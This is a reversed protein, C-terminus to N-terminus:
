LVKGLLQSIIIFIKTRVILGLMIYTTDKGNEIYNFYQNKYMLWRSMEKVFLNLLELKYSHSTKKLKENFINVYKTFINIVVEIEFRKFPNLIPQKKHLATKTLYIEKKVCVDYRHQLPPTYWKGKKSLLIFYRYTVLDRKKINVSM